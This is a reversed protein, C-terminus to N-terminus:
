IVGETISYFVLIVTNWQILIHSKISKTVHTRKSADSRSRQTGM